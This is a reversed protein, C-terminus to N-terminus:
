DTSKHAGLSDGLRRSASKVGWGWPPKKSVPVSKVSAFDSKPQTKQIMSAHVVHFEEMQKTDPMGADAFPHVDDANKHTTHLLPLHREYEDEQDTTQSVVTHTM